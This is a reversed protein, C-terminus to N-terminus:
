LQLVTTKQKVSLKRSISKYLMRFLFFLITSIFPLRILILRTIPKKQFFAVNQCYSSKYVDIFDIQLAYEHAINVYPRSVHPNGELHPTRLFATKDADLAHSSYTETGYLTAVM